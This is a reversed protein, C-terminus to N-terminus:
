PTERHYPHNPLLGAISINWVPIGLTAAPSTPQLRLDGKQV